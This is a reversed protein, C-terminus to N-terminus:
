EQLFATAIEVVAHPDLREAVEGQTGCSRPDWMDADASRVAACSPEHPNPRIATIRPM